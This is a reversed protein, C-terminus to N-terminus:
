GGNAVKRMVPEYPSWNFGQVAQAYIPIHLATGIDRAARLQTEVYSPPKADDYTSRTTGDAPQTFNAFGKRAFQTATLRPQFFLNDRRLAERVADAMTNSTGAPMLAQRGAKRVDSDATWCKSSCNTGKYFWAHWFDIRNGVITASLAGLWFRHYLADFYNTPHGIATRAGEEYSYPFKAYYVVQRVGPYGGNLAEMYQQGRQFVKSDLAARTLAGPYSYDWTHPTTGSGDNYEESDSAIGACGMAECAAALERVSPIVKTNWAADDQWNSYPTYIVGARDLAVAYHGFWVEMGRSAARSIIKTDRIRRQLAYESSSNIAPDSLDGTFRNSKGGLRYLHRTQIIMMGVGRDNRLENLQADTMNTLASSNLGWWAIPKTAADATACITLLSGLTLWVITKVTGGVM